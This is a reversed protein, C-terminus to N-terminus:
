HDAYYVRGQEVAGVRRSPAPPREAVLPPQVHATARGVLRDDRGPEREPALLQETAVLRREPRGNMPELVQAPHAAGAEVQAPGGLAHEVPVELEGEPGPVHGRTGEDHALRAADDRIPLAVGG